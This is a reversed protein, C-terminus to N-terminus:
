RRTVTVTAFLAPHDSLRKGNHEFGQAVGTQDVALTVSPTSRVLIHDIQKGSQRTDLRTLGTTKLFDQLAERQAKKKWDLNFDGGFLVARRASHRKMFDAIMALQEVRIKQDKSGAGAEMHTNYVDVEAGNSLRLRVMLMGKEAFCDQAGKFYGECSGFSLTQSEIVRAATGKALTTLGSGFPQAATAALGGVAGMLGGGTGGGGFLSQLAGAVPVQVGKVSLSGSPGNGRVVMDHPANATVLDQYSFDEQFLVLDYSGAKRAIVPIRGAPDDKAVMAPLGHINYSLVRLSASKNQQAAVPGAAVLVAAIFLLALSRLM